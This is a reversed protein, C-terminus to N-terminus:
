AEDGVDAGDTAYDSGLQVKTVRYGADGGRYLHQLADYLGRNRSSAGGEQGRARERCSDAPCGVLQVVINEYDAGFDHVGM